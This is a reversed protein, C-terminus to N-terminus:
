EQAASTTEGRMWSPGTGFRNFIPQSPVGSAPSDFPEVKIKGPTRVPSLSGLRQSSRRSSLGPREFMGLTTYEALRSPTSPPFVLPNTHKPSSPSATDIITSQPSNPTPSNPRDSRENINITDGEQTIEELQSTVTAPSPEAPSMAQIGARATRRSLDVVRDWVSRLLPHSQLHAEIMVNELEGSLIEMSPDDERVNPVLRGQDDQHYEVPGRM